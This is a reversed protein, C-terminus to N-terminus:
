VAGKSWDTAREIQALIDAPMPCFRGRVQDKVHADLADKISQLSSGRLLRFWMECQRESLAKSYIEFVDSLAADFESVEQLEM